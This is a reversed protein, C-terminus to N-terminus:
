LIEDSFILLLDIQIENSYKMLKNENVFGFVNCDQSFVISNNVYFCEM